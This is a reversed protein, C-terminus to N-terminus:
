HQSPLPLIDKHEPIKTFNPLVRGVPNGLRDVVNALYQVKAVDDDWCDFVRTGVQPCLRDDSDFFIVVDGTAHRFGENIASNIGGNDKYVAVIRSGFSRIIDRSEDTSGDDVVIIEQETATVLLASSIAEGLYEGYNYNCIVISLKLARRPEM